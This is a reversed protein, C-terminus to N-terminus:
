GSTQVRGPAPPASREFGHAAKASQLWGYRVLLPCQDFQPLEAGTVASRWETAACYAEYLRRAHGYDLLTAFELGAKAKEQLEASPSYHATTM